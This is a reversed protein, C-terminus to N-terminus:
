PCNDDNVWDLGGPQELAQVEGPTPRILSTCGDFIFNRDIMAPNTTNLNTICVLNNCGYFMEYFYNVNSMDIGALNVHTLAHCNYFLWLYSVTSATSGAFASVNVTELRICGYFLGEMTTSETLNFGSLDAEVLFQCNRLFGNATKAYAKNVVVKTYNNNSALQIEAGATNEADSWVHWTGDGNNDYVVGGPPYSVNPLVASTITLDFAKLPPPTYGEVVGFLDVKQPRISTPPYLATKSVWGDGDIYECEYGDYAPYEEKFLYQVKLSNKLINMENYMGSIVDNVGDKKLIVDMGALYLSYGQALAPRRMADFLTQHSEYVCDVTEETSPFSLDDASLGGGYTTNTYIDTLVEAMTNGVDTREFYGNVSVQGASSVANTAKIKCVLLTINGYLNTFDENPYIEKVRTIYTDEVDKTDVQRYHKQFSIYLPETDTWGSVDQRITRQIAEDTGESTIFTNRYVETYIGGSETHLYYTITVIAIDINGHSNISYLGAPFKYDFEMYKTGIKIQNKSSLKNMRLELNSPSTLTNTVHVGFGTLPINYFDDQYLLKWEVDEQTSENNALLIADTTNTGQGVCLVHYLYEINNIYKYYPQVIMSPYMRVKGYIIPIPSGLRSINQASSIGYVSSPQGREEPADPAFLKNAVYSLTVSIALNALATLFWGGIVGVPLATRDLLVIVDNNKLKIDYLEVPIEIGNVSIDTPRQFGNPYKDQM